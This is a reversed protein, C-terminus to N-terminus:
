LALPAPAGKPSMTLLKHLHAPWRLVALLAELLCLTSFRSFPNLFPLFHIWPTARLPLPIPGIVVSHSFFFYGLSPFHSMTRAQGDHCGGAVPTELTRSFDQTGVSIHQQTACM